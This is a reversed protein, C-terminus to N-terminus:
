RVYKLLQERRTIVMEASAFAIASLLSLDIQTLFDRAQLQGAFKQRALALAALFAAPTLSKYVFLSLPATGLDFSMEGSYTDSLLKFVPSSIDVWGPSPRNPLYDELRRTHDGAHPLDGMFLSLPADGGTVEALAELIAQTLLKIRIYELGTEINSRAQSTMRRYTSDTPVGRYQHFVKEADLRSMSTEMAQLAQRYERISFLNIFRLTENLEPMLKWTTELYCAVDDEAFSEVDRNAFRVALKVSEEVDAASLGLSWQDTINLARRELVYFFDEGILKSTRFPISAEVCLLLKFLDRETLIPSLKKIMVLASLIENLGAAAALLQGPSFEFIALTIQIIRDDPDIRDAIWIQGGKEQIYPALIERIEPLFGMDVQCYVLDHFLAALTIYPSEGDVLSFVHDLTHYNRTQVTMGSYILFVFGELTTPDVQVGLQDFASKFAKILKQVMSEHLNIEEEAPILWGTRCSLGTFLM